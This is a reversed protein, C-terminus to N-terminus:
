FYKRFLNLHPQGRPTAGFLSFLLIFDLFLLSAAIRIAAKISADIPAANNAVVLAAVVRLVYAYM